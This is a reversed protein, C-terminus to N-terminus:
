SSRLDTLRIHLATSFHLVCSIADVPFDSRTSTCLILRCHTLIGSQGRVKIWDRVQYFRQFQGKATVIGMWPVMHVSLLKLLEDILEDSVNPGSDTIHDTWFRCAYWLEESIDHDTIDPMTEWHPMAQLGPMSPNLNRNMVKLCLLALRQSHEKKDLRFQEPARSTLFDRLSLHAVRIPQNPHDVNNMLSNLPRFVDPVPLSSCTQHLSQLALSSLPIKAAVVAGMYLGYGEVFSEDAWNCRNLITQYLKDMTEEVPLGTPISSQNRDSLFKDVEKDPRTMNRLYKCVTFAWIFLGESKRAFDHLLHHSPWENDVDLGIAMEKLQAHAYVEIDTLNNHALVDIKQTQVHTKLSLIDVEKSPRSTVFFRFTGPLKPVQDRLIKLLANDDSTAEDMADIVIVIPRAVPHRHFPEVILREFRRSQSAGLLDREGELVKLIYKGVDDNIRALDSILNILLRDSSSRAASEQNLFFSSGLIHEADCLRCITHAIATKGSGAVDALCFIEAHQSNEATAVWTM